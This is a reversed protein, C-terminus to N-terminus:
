GILYGSGPLLIFETTERKIGGAIVLRQIVGNYIENQYATGFIFHTTETVSVLTGNPFNVTIRKKYNFSINLLSIDKPVTCLADAYYKIAVASVIQNFISSGPAAPNSYWIKGYVVESASGSVLTIFATAPDSETGTATEKIKYDFRDTGTYTAYPPTYYVKGDGTISYWGGQFTTGSAAVVEIDDGDPDFDNSLLNGSLLQPTTHGISLQFQDNVAAPIRNAVLTINVTVAPGLSPETSGSIDTILGCFLRGEVVIDGAYSIPLTASGFEGEFDAELENTGSIVKVRILQYPNPCHWTIRLSSGNEQVAGFSLLAPCSTPFYTDMNLVGHFQQINAETWELQADYLFALSSPGPLSKKTIIVPLLYNGQVQYCGKNLLLAKILDEKNKPIFGTNANVKQKMSASSEKLKGPIIGRGTDGGNALGTIVQEYDGSKVIEGVCRLNDIGGISNIFLLDEYKFYRTHRYDIRQDYIEVNDDNFFKLHMVSVLESEAQGVIKHIPVYFIDGQRLDADIIHSYETELDDIKVLAKFTPEEIAINDVFLFSAFAPQKTDYVQYNNLPIVKYPVDFFFQINKQGDYPLGGKCVICHQTFNEDGLAGGIFSRWKLRFYKSQGDSRGSALTNLEPMVFRLYPDALSSIDIRVMGSRDPTLTETKIDSYIGSGRFAEVQVTLQLRIDQSAQVAGYPTCALAYEIPNGSWNLLDPIKILNFEM